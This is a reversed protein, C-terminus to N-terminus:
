QEIDESNIKKRRSPPINDENNQRSILQVKEYLDDDFCRTCYSITGNDIFRDTLIFNMGQVKHGEEDKAYKLGYCKQDCHLVNNDSLYLYKGLEHIKENKKNDRSCAYISGAVIYIVVIWLGIKIAKSIYLETKTM